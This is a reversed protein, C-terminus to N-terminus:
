ILLKGGITGALDSLPSVYRNKLEAYSVASPIYRMTLAGEFAGDLIIPVALAKELAGARHHICYGDVRTEDIRRKVRSVDLTGQEAELLRLYTEREQDSCYALFVMGSATDFVPIRFGLSYRQLALPSTHDTNYRVVMDLGTPTTLVIPWTLDKSAETIAAIATDTLASWRDYGHSLRTVEETVEYTKSGEHRRVVGAEILTEILRVVTARPLNVARAVVSARMPGHASIETLVSLGRILSRNTRVGLKSKDM